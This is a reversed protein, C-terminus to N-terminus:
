VNAVKCPNGPAGKTLGAGLIEAGRLHGLPVGPLLGLWVVQRVGCASASWSM